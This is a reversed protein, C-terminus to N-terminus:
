QSNVKKRLHPMSDEPPYVRNSETNQGAETKHKLRLLKGAYHSIFICMGMLAFYDLYFLVKSEEYDLFVFESKLFLYTPFDRKIFVWIGYLAIALTMTFCVASISYPFTEKGRKLRNIVMNWHMGLHLSMFLFGWYSGLIHLRRALALGSKIPLFAFVHRSLVIGSYMQAIMSLLTLLDIITLFIRMPSYKGRFLNKYWSGNLIHHALFLVFMGAGVWEHAMEGWFQYGMLFLLAATMLVDVAMKIKGKM